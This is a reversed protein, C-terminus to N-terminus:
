RYRCPLRRISIIVGLEKFVESPFREEQDIEAAIPVLNDAVFRRITEKTMRHEETEAYDIPKFYM